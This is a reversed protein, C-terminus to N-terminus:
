IEARLWVDKTTALARIDSTIGGNTYTTGDLSFSHQTIISDVIITSFVVYYDDNDLGAWTYFVTASSTNVDESAIVSDDASRKLTVTGTMYTGNIRTLSARISYDVEEKECVHNTWRASDVTVQTKECLYGGWSAFVDVNELVLEYVKGAQKYRNLLGKALNIDGISVGKVVFDYPKGDGHSINVPYGLRHSLIHELWITAGTVSAKLRADDMYLKLDALIGEAPSILTGILQVYRNKRVREALLEAIYKTFNEIM